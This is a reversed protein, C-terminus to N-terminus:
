VKFTQQWLAVFSNKIQDIIHRYNDQNKLRQIQSQIQADNMNRIDGLKDIYKQTQLRKELGLTNLHRQSAIMNQMQKVSLGTAQSISQWQWMNLQGGQGVQQVINNLQQLMQNQKGLFSYQRLRSLQLRRGIMVSAQMQAAISSEFNLINQGVKGITQLQLGLRRAAVAAKTLQQVNGRSLMLVQDSANAIDSMVDSFSVGVAQTVKITQAILKQVERQTKTTLGTVTMHFKAVMQEGIGGMTTALAAYTDLLTQSYGTSQKLYPLFQSNKAQKFFSIMLSSYKEYSGGLYGFQVTLREVQRQM